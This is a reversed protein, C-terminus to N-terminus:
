SMKMSWVWENRCEVCGNVDHLGTHVQGMRQGDEGGMGCLMCAM